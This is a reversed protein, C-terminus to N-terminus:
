NNIAFAFTGKDREDGGESGRAASEVDMQITKLKRDRDRCEAIM